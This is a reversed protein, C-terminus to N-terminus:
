GFNGISAVIGNKVSINLRNVNVEQTTLILKGDKVTIRMTKGAAHLAQELVEVPKGVYASFENM